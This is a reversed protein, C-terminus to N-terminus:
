YKGKRYDAISLERYFNEKELFYNTISKSAFIEQADAQQEPKM